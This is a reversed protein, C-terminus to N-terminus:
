TRRVMLVCVSELSISAACTQQGMNGRGSYRGCVAFIHQYKKVYKNTQLIILKCFLFNEVGVRVDWFQWAWM